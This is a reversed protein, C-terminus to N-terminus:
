SCAVSTPKVSYLGYSLDARVGAHFLGIGLGRCVQFTRLVSHIARQHTTQGPISDTVLAAPDDFVEGPSLNGTGHASGEANGLITVDSGLRTVITCAWTKRPVVPLPSPTNIITLALSNWAAFLRAKRRMALVTLATDAFYSRRIPITTTCNLLPKYKCNLGRSIWPM